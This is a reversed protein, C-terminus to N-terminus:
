TSPREGKQLIEAVKNQLVDFDIPKEVFDSAPLWADDIDKASFGFPYKQNVATLMLIPLGKLKENQAIARALNFGAASDEPFMVDLIALDPRRKEMMEIAGETQLSAEVTHGAKRMVTTVANVFDEDDDVIAIHAM